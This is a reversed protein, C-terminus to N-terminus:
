KAMTIPRYADSRVPCSCGGGRRDPDHFKRPNGAQGRVNIWLPMIGYQATPPCNLCHTTLFVNIQMVIVLKFPPSVYQRMGGTLPPALCRCPDPEAPALAAAHLAADEELCMLEGLVGGDDHSVTAAAKTRDPQSGCPRKRSHQVSVPGADARRKAAGAAVAM